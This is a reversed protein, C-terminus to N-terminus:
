NDQRNGQTRTGVPSSPGTWSADSAAPQNGVHTHAMHCIPQEAPHIYLHTHTWKHPTYKSDWIWMEAQVPLGGGRPAREAGSPGGWGLPGRSRTYWSIAMRLFSSWGLTTLSTSTHSYAPTHKRYVVLLPCQQLASWAMYTHLHQIVWTLVMQVHTLLSMCDLTLLQLQSTM